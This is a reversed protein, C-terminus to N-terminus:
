GGRGQNDFESYFRFWPSWDPQLVIMAFIMFIAIVYATCAILLLFRSLKSEPLPILSRRLFLSTILSFALLPAMSITFNSIDSNTFYIDLGYSEAQPIASFIFAVFLFFAALYPRINRIISRALFSSVLVAGAQVLLSVTTMATYYRIGSITFEGSGLSREPMLFYALLGGIPNMLCFSILAVVFVNCVYVLMVHSRDLMSRM